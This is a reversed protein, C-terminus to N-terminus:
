ARGGIKMDPYKKLVIKEAAFISSGLFVVVGVLTTLVVWGKKKRALDKKM